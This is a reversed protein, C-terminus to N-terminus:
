AHDYLCSVACVYRGEIRLPKGVPQFFAKDEHSIGEIKKGDGPVPQIRGHDVQDDEAAFVWLGHQKLHVQQLGVTLVPKDCDRGVSLFNFRINGFLSLDDM